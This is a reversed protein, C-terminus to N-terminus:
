KKPKLKSTMEELFGDGIGSDRTLHGKWPICIDALKNVKGWYLGQLVLDMEKM